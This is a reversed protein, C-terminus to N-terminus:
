QSKSGYYVRKYSVIVPTSAQAKVIPTGTPGGTEVVFGPYYPPSQGQDYRPDWVGKYQYGHFSGDYVGLNGYVASQAGGVLTFNGRNPKGKYNLVDSQIRGGWPRGDPGALPRGDAGQVQFAAMSAHVTLNDPARGDMPIEINGGSAFIGLVNSADKNIQNGAPDVVPTEYTMDGTITINGGSVPQGPTGTPSGGATVTVAFNSDIAPKATGDLGRGPGGMSKIDGYVYLSAASRNGQKIISRDLPIGRLTRTGNGADITTTGADIDIVVTTSQKGQQIKIVQRNGAPDAVLQVSDASGMVYIGSGTLVEGDTPIYVGQALTPKSSSPDKPEKLPTSVDTALRLSSHLEGNSPPGASLASGGDIVARAQDFANAAPPIPDVGREFGANFKPAVLVSGVVQSDADIPPPPYGAAFLYYSADRYSQTVRGHFVPADKADGTAWFGFRENTHVRGSFRDGPGLGQYLFPGEPNYPDFKDLYLAFEAFSGVRIGGGDTKALLKFNIVGEEVLTVRGNLGALGEGVSRVEYSVSYPEIQGLKPYLPNLYTVRSGIHAPNNDGAQYPVRIEKIKVTTKYASDNPFHESTSLMKEAESTFVEPNLTAQGPVVIPPDPISITIFKDDRILRHLNAIGAEAAYFGSTLNRFNNTISRDSLSTFTVAVGLMLLLSLILLVSVLAIGNQSRDEHVMEGLQFRTVTEASSAVVRKSDSRQGGM